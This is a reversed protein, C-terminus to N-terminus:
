GIRLRPADSQKDSADHRADEGDIKARHESDEVTGIDTLSSVLRDGTEREAKVSFLRLIWSM